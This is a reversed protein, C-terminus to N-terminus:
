LAPTTLGARLALGFIVLVSLTMVGMENRVIALAVARQRERPLSEFDMGGLERESMGARAGEALFAVLLPLLGYVYHLGDAPEYGLLLLVTGILVQIVVLAQAIRLLYWFGVSPQRRLWAVGGWIGALFNSAVVAVGVVLHVDPM